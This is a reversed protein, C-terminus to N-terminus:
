DAGGRFITGDHPFSCMTETNRNSSPGTSRWCTRSCVASRNSRISWSRAIWTASFMPAIGGFAGTVPLRRWVEGASIRAFLGVSGRRGAPGGQERRVNRISRVGLRGPLRRLGAARGGLYEGGAAAVGTGGSARHGSVPHCVM